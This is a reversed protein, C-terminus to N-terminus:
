KKKEDVRMATPKHRRDLAAKLRGRAPGPVKGWEEELAAMGKKAADGLRQDLTLLEGVADPNLEQPTGAGEEPPHPSPPPPAPEEGAPLPSLDAAPPDAAVSPSPPSDIVNPAPPQPLRQFVEDPLESEDLLFGLGCISLTARRKSKTEAKMMANALAEGRLTGIAVAGISADTRGAANRVKTTVTYVGDGTKIAIEEVSINHISRLQEACNKTAYLQLVGQLKIYKFPQTLPNLGTTECVKLYYETRQQPSLVSLDGAILVSEVLAPDLTTVVPVNM